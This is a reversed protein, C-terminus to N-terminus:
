SEDRMDELQGFLELNEVSRQRIEDDSLRSPMVEQMAGFYDQEHYNIRHHSIDHITILTMNHYIYLKNDIPVLKVRKGIFEKPVSYESGAYRVLLTSPVTQTLVDSIYSELLITNSIPKLHEMEKKILKVPPICTTQNVTNNVDDNFRRITEILEDESELEYNYPEIWNVFRNASEVKGKTQPTRVKCLHIKVGIDKEFEKIIPLKTKGKGNVNVVASMNDTVLRDPIGGAKRLVEILCRLFDETTKTKSYIYYHFRSYGFTAVFLNYEIVEGSKLIMRLNEKWDLQLQHGPASEYRPHLKMDVKKQLEKGQLYHAFSSYCTFVGDEAYKKEFYKFLAMKTCSVSEAKEKIEDFYPDYKSSRAICVPQVMGDNWYKAITHRDLGYQRSLASFNPQLGETKLIAFDGRLGQLIVQSVM